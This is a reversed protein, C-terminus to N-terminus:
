LPAQRALRHMDGSVNSTEPLFELLRGDLLVEGRDAHQKVPEDGALHDGGIRRMRHAPWLVDDLSALGRHQCAFLRALQEVADIHGREDAQAIARQDRHHGESERPDARDDGHADFVIVGVAFAPPDAQM